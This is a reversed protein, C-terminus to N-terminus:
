SEFLVSNKKSKKAIEKCMEYRMYIGKRYAKHLKKWTYNLNHRSQNKDTPHAFSSPFFDFRTLSRTSSFFSSNIRYYWKINKNHARVHTKAHNVM